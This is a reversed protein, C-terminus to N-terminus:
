FGEIPETVRGIFLPVKSTRDVILALFPHDAFFKMDETFSILSLTNVLVATSLCTQDFIM